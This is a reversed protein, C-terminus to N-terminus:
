GQQGYALEDGHRIYMDYCCVIKRGTMKYIVNLFFIYIKGFFSHCICTCGKDKDDGSPEQLMITLSGHGAVADDM